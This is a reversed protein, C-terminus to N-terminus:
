GDAHGHLIACSVRVIEVEAAAALGWARGPPLVTRRMTPARPRAEGPETLEERGREARWLCSIFPNSFTPKHGVKVNAVHMMM